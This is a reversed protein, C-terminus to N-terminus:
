AYEWHWPESAVTRKFHFGAANATMWYFAANTGSNTNVDVALGNEHDSFGAPAAVPGNGAEYLERLAVQDDYSRLASDIELEVGARAAADRMVIFAEAADRRMFQTVGARNVGIPFIRFQVPQGQYHGWWLDVGQDDGIPTISPADTEDPSSGPDPTTRLQLAALILTGGALVEGTSM